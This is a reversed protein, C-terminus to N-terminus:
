RVNGTTTVVSSHTSGTPSRCLDDIADAISQYIKRSRSRITFEDSLRIFFISSISSSLSRHRVIFEGQNRKSQSANITNVSKPMVNVNQNSNFGIQKQRGTSAGNSRSRTTQGLSPVHLFPSKERKTKTPIRVYDRKRYSKFLHLSTDFFRSDNKFIIEYHDRDNYLRNSHGDTAGSTTTNSSSDSHNSDSRKRSM